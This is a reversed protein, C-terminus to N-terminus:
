EGGGTSHGVLVVDRLDLAEILEALDDAYTDLDNGNWPQSSRGHGRRDHAVARYGNSAVLFAQEDWADANLPWGHSFVVPQGTGWDKYFIEAGDSVRVMPMVNEQAPHRAFRPPSPRVHEATQVAAQSISRRQRGTHRVGHAGM